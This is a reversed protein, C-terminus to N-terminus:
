RDEIFAPVAFGGDSRRPAEALAQEASLGPHHGEPRLPAREVAVSSTPAVNTTDLQNLLAVYGVIKDLDRQMRGIEQDSLELRALGAIHLVEERTIAM